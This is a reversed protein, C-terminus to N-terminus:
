TDLRKEPRGLISFFFRKSLVWNIVGLAYGFFGLLFCVAGDLLLFGRGMVGARM